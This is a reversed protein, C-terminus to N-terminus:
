PADQEVFTNDEGPTTGVSYRTAELSKRKSILQQRLEKLAADNRQTLGPRPVNSEARERESGSLAEGAVAKKATGGVEAARAERQAVSPFVQDFMRMASEPLIGRIFQIDTDLIQQGLGVNSDKILRDVADVAQDIQAVQSRTGPSEEKGLKAGAAKAADAKLKMGYAAMSDQNQMHARQYANTTMEDQAKAKNVRFQAIAMQAKSQAEGPAMQEAIGELKRAFGENMAARAAAAAERDDLGRERLRGYMTNLGAMKDKAGERALNFNERQVAIDQAIMQDIRGSPDRGSLGALFGGIAMFAKQGTSKSNWMHDPDIQMKKSMDDLTQLYASNIRDENERQRQKAKVQEVEFGALAAEHDARAKLQETARKEATDTATKQGAMFDKEAQALSPTGGPAMNAGGKFKMGVEADTTPAPMPAPVPASPQVPQNPATAGQLDAMQAGPSPGLLSNGASKVVDLPSRGTGAPIGTMDLPQPVEQGMPAPLGGVNVPGQDMELLSGQGPPIPGPPTGMGAPGPLAGKIADGFFKRPGSAQEDLVPERQGPNTLMPKQVPKEADAGESVSLTVGAGTGKSPSTGDGGVRTAVTPTAGEDALNDTGVKKARSPSAGTKEGDITASEFSDKDAADSVRKMWASEDLDGRPVVVTGGSKDKFRIADGEVDNLGGRTKESEKITSLRGSAEARAKVDAWKEDDLGARSVIGKEYTPNGDADTGLPVLVEVYDGLKLKKTPDSRNPM